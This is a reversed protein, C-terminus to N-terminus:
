KYIRNSRSYFPPLVYKKVDKKIQNQSSNQNSKVIPKVTPKVISKKNAVWKDIVDEVDMSKCHIMEDKVWDPLYQGVSLKGDNTFRNDALVLIGTENKGRIVRGIAQLAKNMAPLGYAIFSGYKVGYRKNYYENKIKQLPSLSGLPLGIVMAGMLLDGSYDLGESLKGGCVANLIGGNKKASQIFGNYVIEEATNNKQDFYEKGIEAAYKSVFNNYSSKIGYSNYFIGVNGPTKTITGICKKYNNITAPDNRYDINTNVDTVGIILRNESKFSNLLTCKEARGNNGFYYLEYDEIPSFTGSMMITTHHLDVIKSIQSSPDVSKIEFVVNNLENDDTKKMLVFPTDLNQNFNNVKCLFDMLKQLPEMEDESNTDNNGDILNSYVLINSIVDDFTSLNVIDRFVGDVFLSIDIISPEKKRYKKQSEFIGNLNLLINHLIVLNEHHMGKKDVCRNKLVDIQDIASGVLDQNIIESYNEEVANGFNHAEDILLIVEDSKVGIKMYTPTRIAEDLIHNFMLISIDSSKSASAMVEYPCIDDCTKKLQKHPMRSSLLKMAKNSCKSSELFHVENTNEDFRGVKSFLFYPCIQVLKSDPKALESSDNILYGDGNKSIEWGSDNLEDIINRDLFPDYKELQSNHIKYEIFEKTNEVLLKCKDSNVSLKCVKHKGVMYSITPSKSTNEWIKEIENLYIEIQSNTRVAVIVKKDTKNALIPSIVSTKGSGTPADIMLVAHNGKILTEQVKDLMQEQNDRFKLYPFYGGYKSSIIAV